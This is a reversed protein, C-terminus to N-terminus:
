SGEGREQDWTTRGSRAWRRGPWPRSTPRSSRASATVTVVHNWVDITVFDQFRGLPCNLYLTPPERLGTRGNATGDPCVPWSNPLGGAVIARDFARRGRPLEDRGPEARAALDILPYRKAPDYGPPVYVYADRRQGSAVPRRDPRGLGHDATYDDVHGALRANLQGLDM